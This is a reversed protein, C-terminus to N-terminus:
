ASRRWPWLWAVTLRHAPPPETDSRCAAWVLLALAATFALPNLVNPLLVDERTLGWTAAYLMLYPSLGWLLTRHLFEVPMRFTLLIMGLGTYLWAIGALVWPLVRVSWPGPPATWVLAVVLAVTSGITVLAWMWPRPVQRFVRIALELGLGIAALAHISEKVTWFRWTNCTPCVGVVIASALWTFILAPLMYCQRVRGRAILGTLLAVELGVCLWILTTLYALVLPDLGVSVRGTRIRAEHICPM